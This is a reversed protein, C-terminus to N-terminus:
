WDRWVDERARRAYRGVVYQGQTEVGDDPGRTNGHKIGDYADLGLGVLLPVKAPNGDGETTAAEEEDYLEEPHAFRISTSPLVFSIWLTSQTELDRNTLNDTRRRRLGQVPRTFRNNVVARERM